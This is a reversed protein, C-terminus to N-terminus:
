KHQHIQTQMNDLQRKIDLIQGPVPKLALITDYTETPNLLKMDNKLTNVDLYIANIQNALTPATTLLHNVDAGAVIATQFHDELSKLRADIGGYVVSVFVYILSIYGGVGANAPHRSLKCRRHRSEALM